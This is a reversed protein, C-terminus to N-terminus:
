SRWLLMFGKTSVEVFAHLRENLDRRFCSAKRRSRLSLMRLPVYITVFHSNTVFYRINPARGAKKFGEKGRRTLPDDNIFWWSRGGQWLGLFNICYIVLWNVKKPKVWFFYIDILCFSCSFLCLHSYQAYWTPFHNLYSRNPELEDLGNNPDGMITEHVSILEVSVNQCNGIHKFITIKPPFQGNQPPM